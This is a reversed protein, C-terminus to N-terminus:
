FSADCVQCAITKGKRIGPGNCSPCHAGAPPEIIEEPEVPEVPEVKERSAIELKEDGAAVMDIRGNNENVMQVEKRNIVTSMALLVIALSNILTGKTM